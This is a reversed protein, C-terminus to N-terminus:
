RQESFGFVVVRERVSVLVDRFRFSATGIEFRSRGGTELRAAIAQKDEATVGRRLV